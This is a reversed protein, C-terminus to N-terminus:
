RIDDPRKIGWLTKFPDVGKALRFATYVKISAGRICRGGGPVALRVLLSNRVERDGSEGDWV